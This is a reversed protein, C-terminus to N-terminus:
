KGMCYLNGLGCPCQPNPCSYCMVPQLVLSCTPCKREVEQLPPHSIGKEKLIKSIELKSDEMTVELKTDFLRIETSHNDFILFSDLESLLKKYDEQSIQIKDM